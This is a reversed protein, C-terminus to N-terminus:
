ALPSTPSCGCFKFFENESRLREVGKQLLYHGKSVQTAGNASFREVWLFLTSRAIELQQHLEAASVGNQYQKVTQLKFEETYRKAM